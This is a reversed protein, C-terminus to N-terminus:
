SVCGCGNSMLSTNRDKKANAASAAEEFQLFARLRGEESLTEIWANAAHRLAKQRALDTVVAQKQEKEISQKFRELARDGGTQKKESMTYNRYTILRVSWETALFSSPKTRFFSFRNSARKEFYKEERDGPSSNPKSVAGKLGASKQLSLINKVLPKRAQAIQLALTQPLLAAIRVIETDAAKIEAFEGVLVEKAKKQARTEAQQRLQLWAAGLVSKARKFGIPSKRLRKLISQNADTNKKADLARLKPEAGKDEFELFGSALGEAVSLVADAEEERSAVDQEKQKLEKQAKKIRLEEDQRWKQTRVHRRKPPPTEGQERAERIQAARNDGRVLDLPEFWKGVSDQAVEYNEIVEYKSPQLVKRVGIGKGVAVRPM